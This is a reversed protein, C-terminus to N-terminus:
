HQTFHVVAVISQFLTDALERTRVCLQHGNRPRKMLVPGESNDSLPGVIFDKSDFAEDMMFFRQRYHRIVREWEVLKTADDDRVRERNTKRGLGADYEFRLDMGNKGSALLEDRICFVIISIHTDHRQQCYSRAFVPSNCVYFGKRSDTSFDWRGWGQDLNIRHRM